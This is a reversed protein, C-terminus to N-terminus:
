DTTEDIEKKLKEGTRLLRKSSALIAELNEKQRWTFDAPKSLLESTKDIIRLIGQRLELSLWMLSDTEEKKIAKKLKRDTKRLIAIKKEGELLRLYQRGFFLALPCIFFLSALSLFNGLNDFPGLLLFFLVLTLTLILSINPGLLLSAGFLLFYVLFFLPSALGGSTAVLILSVISLILINIFLSPRRKGIIQNLFYFIICLAILQLTYLSANASKIWFYVLFVSSILFFLNILNSSKPM